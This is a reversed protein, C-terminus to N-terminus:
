LDHVVEHPRIRSKALSLATEPRPYKEPDVLHRVWTQLDDTGKIIVADALECARGLLEVDETDTHVLIKVGPVRERLAECLYLGDSDGQLHLEAVVLDVGAPILAIGDGGSFVAVIEFDYGELAEGVFHQYLALRDAIWIRRCSM